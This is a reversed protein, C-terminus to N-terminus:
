EFPFVLPVGILTVIMMVFVMPLGVKLYDRFSYNGAGMVLTNVPSAVPSAFAMSAAIAVTMLFAQPAVGFQVAITLAIPALIVTTATNSIVQTFASTLLFLGAMIAYAGYQGLAATTGNAILDALGVKQIATSMPIMGAILIISRWDIAAYAEDMTLCGTLIMLLGATLSISAVNIISGLEPNGTISVLLGEGFILAVLMAVLVALAIPARKRNGVSAAEEPEGMLIFDHPRKRLALINDWYGQVLLTDGFELKTTKLDLKGKHGPRLIDLVTLHNVTGFNADVLTKGILRSRPRLIVEAIGIKENIIMDKVQETVKDTALRWFSKAMEVKDHDGQLVLLDGRQIITGAVPLISERKDSQVVIRQGGISMLPQDEQPRLIEVLTINYDKNLRSEAVSKGDLASSSTVRLSVLDKALYLELLEDPSDGYVNDEEVTHVPLLRRGVLVMFAVGAVLMALGVPTYSFFGFPQMGNEALLESVYINPPTGILTMAGGLLAGFSLPMLLQSPSLKATRALAIVAPLLVAVTGTDSMFGSLLAVAIMIVAMLRVPDRGAIRLIREGIMAALGTQLVAGGVIFLAFITMVTSNSFGALAESTTLIGSMMLVVLVTFAVVDVRLLETVFLVIAVVLIGLTFWMDFTLGSM